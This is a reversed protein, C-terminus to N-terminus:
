REERWENYMPHCGKPRYVGEEKKCIICEM